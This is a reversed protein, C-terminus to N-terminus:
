DFKCGSLIKSATKQMKIEQKETKHDFGFCHLLGHIFLEAMEKKLSLNKEKAQKKATDVSIFIDGAVVDTKIKKSEVVELYAFSIVDTPTNKGRYEKNMKKMVKDPILILDIDGNKGGLKKDVLPKLNKYFEKAISEFFGKKVPTKTENTFYFNLM